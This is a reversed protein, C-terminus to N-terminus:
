GPMLETLQLACKQLDGVHQRAIQLPFRASPAAVALSAVVAGSEDTVPVAVGCVGALYEEDDQAYGQKRTERLARLLAARSTITRSTHRTLTLADIIRTQQKASAFALLVKGSATCHPPVRSGPKFDARLPWSCEVRDVYVVETGSLMGLNVTEGLLESLNQLLSRRTAHVPGTRIVKLCADHFLQGVGYRGSLPDRYILRERELAAALRHVTPKPFGAATTVEALSLPTDAQAICALLKMAKGVSSLQGM